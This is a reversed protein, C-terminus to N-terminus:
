AAVEPVPRKLAPSLGLRDRVMVGMGLFGDQVRIKKGQAYTRPQYDIPAEVITHGSLLLKDVLEFDLDFGYGVLNLRRLVDSRVLKAATAVDTLRAGFLLNTFATMLRVGWYAHVYEYRPAGGLVRSGLVADARREVATRLLRPIDAPDYELDADQIIFYDGTHHEVATRISAGKGLNEPQYIVTVDPDSVQRLLEATGDISCNDVVLVEKEWGDDLRLARVRELVALITDRENFACIVISLRM